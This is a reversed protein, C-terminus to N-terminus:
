QRISALRVWEVREEWAATAQSAAAAAAVDHKQHRARDAGRTRHIMSAM